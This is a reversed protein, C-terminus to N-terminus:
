YASLLRLAGGSCVFLKTICLPDKRKREEPRFLKRCCASVLKREM